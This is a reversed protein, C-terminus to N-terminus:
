PFRTTSVERCLMPQCPPPCNHSKLPPRLMGILCLNLYYSVILPILWAQVQCNRTQMIVRPTHQCDCIWLMRSPLFYAEVSCCSNNLPAGPLPLMDYYHTAAQWFQSNFLIHTPKWIQSFWVRCCRAKSTRTCKMGSCVFARSYVEPLGPIRSGHRLIPYIVAIDSLCDTYGLIILYESSSRDWTLLQCCNEHEISQFDTLITSQNFIGFEKTVTTDPAGCVSVCWIIRILSPPEPAGSYVSRTRLFRLWLEVGVTKLSFACSRCIRLLSYIACRFKVEDVM